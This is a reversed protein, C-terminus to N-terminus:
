SAVLMKVGKKVSPGPEVACLCQRVARCDVANRCDIVEVVGRQARPGGAVWGRGM